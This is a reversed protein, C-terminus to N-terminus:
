RTVKEDRMGCERTVPFYETACVVLQHVIRSLLNTSVGGGRREIMRNRVLPPSGDDRVVSLDPGTLYHNRATTETKISVYYGSPIRLPSGWMLNATINPRPRNLGPTMMSGFGSNAKSGSSSSFSASNLFIIQHTSWPIRIM